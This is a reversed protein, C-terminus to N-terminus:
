TYMGKKYIYKEVNKPVLYKILTHEKIRRRIDSSSIEIVPSDIFTVRQIFGQEAATLDIGPRRLVLVQVERLLTDPKKWNELDLLNDAGIILFYEVDDSSNQKLHQITDITYSIGGKRIEYESIEFYPNDKLALRLMALRYKNQSIKKDTKHPPVAAPLFIIKDLKKNNRVFDACILHGLHVPDFTGGIIGVKLKM